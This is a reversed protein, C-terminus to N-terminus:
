DHIIKDYAGIMQEGINLMWDFCKEYERRNDFNIPYSSEIKHVLYGRKPPTFYVKSGGGVLENFRDAQAKIKEFTSKDDLRLRIDVRNRSPIHYFCTRIDINNYKIDLYNNHPKYFKFRAVSRSNAYDIFEEFFNYHELNNSNQYINSKIRIM